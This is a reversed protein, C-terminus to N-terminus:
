ERYYLTQSQRDRFGVVGLSKTFYTKWIAKNQNYSSLTDIMQAYVNSYTGNGMQLTSLLSDGSNLQTPNNIDIKSIFGLIAFTLNSSTKYKNDSEEEIDVSYNQFNNIASDSLAYFRGNANCRYDCSCGVGGHKCAQAEYPSSVMRSIVVFKLHQGITNVFKITDNQNQNLWSLADDSLTGCNYKKDCNCSSLHLTITLGILLKLKNM